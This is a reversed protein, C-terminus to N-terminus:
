NGTWGDTIADAMRAVRAMEKVDHVRVISAGLNISIAVCAATGDVRDAASPAGLVAGITSKRSAGVLLLYGPILLESQRRILELNHQVSKGFGIGPDLVIRDRHVGATEATHARECLHARVERVVDLYAPDTDIMGPLGPMHMLCVCVGTNAVVSAMGPDARMASIDNIMAAGCDVARRAVEAKYTDVSIPLEPFRKAVIEIVPLVRRMEHEATLPAGARFTAPRTSEGGIDIIDAGQSIMEDARALANEVGIYRGGDSFSDPTTNLVGMIVTAGGSHARSLLARMAQDSRRNPVTIQEGADTADDTNLPSNPPRMDIGHEIM